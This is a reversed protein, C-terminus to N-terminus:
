ICTFIYIPSPRREIGYAIRKAPQNPRSARMAEVAIKQTEALSSM